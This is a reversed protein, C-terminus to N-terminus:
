RIRVRMDMMEGSLTEGTNTRADVSASGGFIDERKTFNV